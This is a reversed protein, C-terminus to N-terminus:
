RHGDISSYPNLPSLIGARDSVEPSTALARRLEITLAIRPGPVFFVSVFAM